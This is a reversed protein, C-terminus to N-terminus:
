GTVAQILFEELNVKKKVIKNVASFAADVPGNGTSCGIEEVGNVLLKVSAMPYLPTGCVVELFELKIGANVIDGGM